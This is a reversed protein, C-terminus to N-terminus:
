IVGDGSSGRSDGVFGSGFSDGVLSCGLSLGVSTFSSFFDMVGTLTLVVRGFAATWIIALELSSFFNSAFLVVTVRRFIGILLGLEASSLRGVTGFCVIGM